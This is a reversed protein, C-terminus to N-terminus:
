GSSNARPDAEFSQNFIPCSPSRESDPQAEIRNHINEMSEAVRPERSLVNAQYAFKGSIQM